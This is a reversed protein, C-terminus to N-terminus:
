PVRTHSLELTPQSLELKSTEDCGFLKFVCTAQQAPRERCTRKFCPHRYLHVLRNPCVETLHFSYDTTPLLSCQTQLRLAWDICSTWWMEVWSRGELGTVRTACSVGILLSSITYTATAAINARISTHSHFRVPLWERTISVQAACHEVLDSPLTTCAPAIYKLTEKTERTARDPVRRELCLRIDLGM